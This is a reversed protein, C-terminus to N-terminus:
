LDRIKWGYNSVFAEAWRKYYKVNRVEINSLEKWAKKNKKFYDVVWKIFTEQEHVTWEYELFWDDKKVDVKSTDAGVMDCMKFLITKLYENM